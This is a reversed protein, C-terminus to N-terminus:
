KYRQDNTVIGAAQREEETLQFLNILWNLLGRFARLKGLISSQGHTDAEQRYSSNDM